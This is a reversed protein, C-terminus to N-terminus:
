LAGIREVRGARAIADNLVSGLNIEEFRFIGLESKMDVGEASYTM